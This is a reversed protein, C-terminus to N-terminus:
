EKLLVCLDAIPKNDTTLGFGDPFVAGTILVGGDSFAEAAAGPCDYGEIFSWYCDSLDILAKEGDVYVDVFGLISSEVDAHSLFLSLHYGSAGLVPEWEATVV